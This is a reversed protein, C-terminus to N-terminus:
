IGEQQGILCGTRHTALNVQSEQDRASFTTRFFRSNTRDKDPPRPTTSCLGIATTLHYDYQLMVDTM